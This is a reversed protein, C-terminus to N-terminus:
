NEECEAHRLVKRYKVDEAIIRRPIVTIFNLSIRILVLACVNRIGSFSHFKWSFRKGVNIIKILIKEDGM